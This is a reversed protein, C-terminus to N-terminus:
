TSKYSKQLNHKARFLIDMDQKPWKAPDAKRDLIYSTKRIM